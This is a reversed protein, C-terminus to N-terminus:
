HNSLVYRNPLERPRRGHAFNSTTICVCSRAGNLAGVFAQLQPESMKHDAAYRKAQAHIQTLM